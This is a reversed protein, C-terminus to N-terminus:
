LKYEFNSKWPLQWDEYDENKQFVGGGERNKPFSINKDFKQIISLLVYIILLHWDLNKM